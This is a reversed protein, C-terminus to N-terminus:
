KNAAVVAISGSLMGLVFNLMALFLNVEVSMWGVSELQRASPIDAQLNVSEGTMAVTESPATKNNKSPEIM